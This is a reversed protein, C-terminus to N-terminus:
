RLGEIRAGLRRLESWFGPYSKAVCDAGQLWTIGEAGLAAIGLAMAMRHDDYAKVSAGHLRSPRVTLSDDHEDIDAGMKRLEATIAGLRDCEKLRAVGCNIIKTTGSAFCSTVALVPLADIFGNIDVEGGKLRGSKEVRLAREADNWTVKAGINVFHDILQKDGQADSRELNGVALDSGTLLAAAVPFAASSFDGPVKYSFGEPVSRGHVRYFGYDEREFPIGLRTLWSLTLEIWPTEGPNLVRISTTGELFGAAMLFASVPQSDSGEITMTGARLPGKIILPAHGNGVLSQCWGGLQRIGEMLPAVPRNHRVSRDGTIVAYGPALAALAAIFRLVQGSNGADIIDGPPSPCGAVGEIELDDGDETIQAGLLRCATIMARIDPSDLVGSIRSKGRAMSALMIARMSQSKSPPVLISGALKSPRIAIESM